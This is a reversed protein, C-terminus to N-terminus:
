VNKVMLKDIKLLTAIYDEPMLFVGKEDLKGGYQFEDTWIKKGGAQVYHGLLLSGDVYVKFGRERARVCYGAEESHLQPNTIIPLFNVKKDMLLERSICMAATGVSYVEEFGDCVTKCAHPKTERESGFNFWVASLCLGHTGRFIPSVGGVLHTKWSTLRTIFDTYPILIDSDVFIAYEVDLKRARDLLIQRLQGIVGYKTGLIQYTNKTFWLRIIETPHTRQWKVLLKLTEDESNNELFIYKDPQPDLDEMYQLTKVLLRAHNYTPILFVVKM